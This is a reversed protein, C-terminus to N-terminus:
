KFDSLLDLAKNLEITLILEAENRTDAARIQDIVRQPISMVKDRIQIGFQFLTKDQKAKDVLRGQKELLEIEKIRATASKNRRESELIELKGVDYETLEKAPLEKVRQKKADPEPDEKFDEEPEPEPVDVMKESRQSKSFHIRESLSISGTSQKTQAPKPTLIRPRKKVKPIPAPKEKKPKIPKKTKPVPEPKPTRQGSAIRNSENFETTPSYLLFAEKALEYFLRAQGGLSVTRATLPIKLTELYYKRVATDSIGARRSFERISVVEYEIIM